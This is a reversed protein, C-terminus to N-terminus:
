EKVEFSDILDIIKQRQEKWNKVYRKKNYRIKYIIDKDTFRHSCGPIRDRGEPSCELWDIVKGSEDKNFYVEYHKVPKEKLGQYWDEREMSDFGEKKELKTLGNRRSEISASLEPKSDAPQMLLGAKYGEYLLNKRDEKNPVEVLARFDPLYYEMVLGDQELGEELRGDIYKLPVDFVRGAMKIRRVQENLPKKMDLKSYEPAGYIKEFVENQKNQSTFAWFGAAIILSLIAVLLIKNKM